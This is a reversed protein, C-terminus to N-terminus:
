NQRVNATLVKAVSTFLVMPVTSILLSRSSISKLLFISAFSLSIRSNLSRNDLTDLVVLRGLVSCFLASSIVGISKFYVSQNSQNPKKTLICPQLRSYLFLLIGCNVTEWSRLVNLTFQTASPTANTKLSACLTWQFFSATRNCQQKLGGDYHPVLKCSRNGFASFWTGSKM